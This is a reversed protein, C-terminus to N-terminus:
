QKGTMRVDAMEIKQIVDRVLAAEASGEALIGAEVLVELQVRAEELLVSAQQGSSRCANAEGQMVQMRNSIANLRSEM